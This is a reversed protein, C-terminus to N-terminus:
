TKPLGSDADRSLNHITKSKKEIKRCSKHTLLVERNFNEAGSLREDINEKTYGKNVLYGHPEQLRNTVTDTSSSIRRIRLAQIYLIQKTQKCCLDTVMRGDKISATTDLFSIQSAQFKM